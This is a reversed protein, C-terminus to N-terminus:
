LEKQQEVLRTCTVIRDLKQYEAAAANGLQVLPGQLEGTDAYGAARHNEVVREFTEIGEPDLHGLTTEHMARGLQVGNPALAVFLHCSRSDKGNGAFSIAGARFPIKNPEDVINADQWKAQVQPDAVVGFQVLFGEIVRYLLMDTFFGSDVLDRLRDVGLPSSSRSLSITFNGATTSCSVKTTANTALALVLLGCFVLGRM